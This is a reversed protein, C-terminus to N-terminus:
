LSGISRPPLGILTDVTLDDIPTLTKSESVSWRRLKSREADSLLCVNGCGPACHIGGFMYPKTAAGLDTVEGSAVDVALVHDGATSNGGYSKVLLTTTTAFMVAPQLGASIQEAVKLRRLETPPTTTIDLIVIDSAAVDYQKTSSDRKGSCAVAALKRTPSVAVRGCSKLGALDVQWAIRHTAPLIGILRGDGVTAYDSSWRGLTVVVYAGIWNMGDPRPFLRTDEEPMPISEVIAPTKTDVILVDSGRDFPQAGPDLNVGFRTVYAFTDDIEVYDRPNSEFGAGVPLQALVSATSVDMWTIVNTGYRDLIVLRKSAPAVFPVDIDGSIALALGPKTAGSSVFSSSLTTGDLKSIAVNTSKYDSTVIAIARDCSAGPGGFEVGGTSDPAASVNCGLALAGLTVIWTDIKLQGLGTSKVM